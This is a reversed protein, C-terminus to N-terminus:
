RYFWAAAAVANRVMQLLFESEKAQSWNKHKQSATFLGRLYVTLYASGRCLSFFSYQKSTFPPQQLSPQQNVVRRKCVQSRCSQPSPDQSTHIQSPYACLIFRLCNNHVIFYRLHRLACPQPINCPCWRLLHCTQRLSGLFVGGRVGALKNLLFHRFSFVVTAMPVFLHRNLYRLGNLQAVKRNFNLM